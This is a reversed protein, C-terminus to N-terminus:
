SNLIVIVLSARVQRNLSNVLSKLRRFPIFYLKKQSKFNRPDSSFYVLQLRDLKTCSSNVQRFMQIKPVNSFEVSLNKLTRKLRQMKKKMERRTEGSHSNLGLSNAFFLKRTRKELNLRRTSILTVLQMLFITRSLYKTIVCLRILHAPSFFLYFISFITWCYWHSNFFTKLFNVDGFFFSFNLQFRSCHISIILVIFFLSCFLDIWDIVWRLFSWHIVSLLSRSNKFNFILRM